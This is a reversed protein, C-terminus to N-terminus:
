SHVSVEKSRWYWHRFEVATSVQQDATKELWGFKHREHTIQFKQHNTKTLAAELLPILHLSNHITTLTFWKAQTKNLSFILRKCM